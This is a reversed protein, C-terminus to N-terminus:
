TTRSRRATGRSRPTLPGGRALWGGPLGGQGPKPQKRNRHQCVRVGVRGHVFLLHSLRGLVSVHRTQHPVKGHQNKSHSGHKDCTGHVCTLLLKLQAM